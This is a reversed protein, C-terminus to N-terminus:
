IPITLIAVLGRAGNDYNIKAGIANARMRLTNHKKRLREIFEQRKSFGSGDDEVEIMLKSSRWTVRVWVHWAASHRFANHVLEQVMRLAYIEAVPSLDLPLGHFESNIRLAGPTEMTQCLSVIRQQFTDDDTKIPHLRRSIRRVSDVITDFEAQMKIVIDRTDAPNFSAREIKDMNLRFATLKQILDDHIEAGIESIIQECAEMAERGVEVDVNKGSFLSFLTMQKLNDSHELPLRFPRLGFLIQFFVIYTKVFL